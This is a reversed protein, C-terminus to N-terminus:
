IVGYAILLFIVGILVELAEVGGNYKGKPKGHQSAGYIGFIVKLIGIIVLIWFGLESLM